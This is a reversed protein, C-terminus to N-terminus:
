LAWVCFDAQSEPRVLGCEEQPHHSSRQQEKPNVAPKTAQPAPRLAGSGLLSCQSAREWCSTGGLGGRGESRSGREGVGGRGGM